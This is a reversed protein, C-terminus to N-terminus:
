EAIKWSEISRSATSFCVGIKFLRRADSAYKRTYKKEEIQRLAAYALTMLRKKIDNQVEQAVETPTL